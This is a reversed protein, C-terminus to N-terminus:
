SKWFYISNLTQEKFTSIFVLFCDTKKIVGIITLAGCSRYHIGLKGTSGQADRAKTETQKQQIGKRTRRTAKRPM